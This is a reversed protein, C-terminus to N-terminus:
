YLLTQALKFFVAGLRHYFLMFYDLALAARKLIGIKERRLIQADACLRV